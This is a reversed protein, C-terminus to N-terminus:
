ASAEVSARSAFMTVQVAENYRTEGTLRLAYRGPPLNDTAAAPTLKLALRMGRLWQDCLYQDLVLEASGDAPVFAVVLGTMRIADDLRFEVVADGPQGTAGDRLIRGHLFEPRVMANTSVSDAMLQNPLSPSPLFPAYVETAEREFDEYALWAFGRDGWRDGWSNAIRWAGRGNDYGVLVMAHPDTMCDREEEPQRYVGDGAFLEFRKSVQMGFPLIMQTALATQLGLRDRPDIRLYGQLFLRPGALSSAICASSDLDPRARITLGGDRVLLDLAATMRLAGSCSPYDRQGKAAAYVDHPNVQYDPQRATRATPRSIANVFSTLYYGAAWGAATSNYQVGPLPIVEPTLGVSAMQTADTLDWREPLVLPTAGAVGQSGPAWAAAAPRLALVRALNEATAPLLGKGNHPDGMSCQKRQEWGEPRSTALLTALGTGTVATVGAIRGARALFRRRQM